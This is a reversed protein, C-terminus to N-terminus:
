DANFFDWLRETASRVYRNTHRKYQKESTSSSIGILHTRQRSRAM